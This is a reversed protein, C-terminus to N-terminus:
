LKEDQWVRTQLEKYEVNHEVDVASVMYVYHHYADYAFYM